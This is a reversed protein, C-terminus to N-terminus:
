DSSSNKLPNDMPWYEVPNVSINELNALQTVQEESLARGYLRVEDVAAAALENARPDGGAYLPLSPM